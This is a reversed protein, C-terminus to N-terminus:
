QVSSVHFTLPWGWLESDRHGHDGTWGEFGEQFQLGECRLLWLLIPADIAM